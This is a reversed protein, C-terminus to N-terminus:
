NNCADNNACDCDALQDQDNSPKTEDPLPVVVQPLVQLLFLVGLLALSVRGLDTLLSSLRLRSSKPMRGKAAHKGQADM